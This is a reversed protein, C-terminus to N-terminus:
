YGRAPRFQALATLLRKSFAARDVQESPQWCSYTSTAPKRTQKGVAASAKARMQKRAAFLNHPHGMSMAEGGISLLVLGAIVITKM